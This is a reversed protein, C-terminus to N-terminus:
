KHGNHLNQVFKQRQPWTPQRPKATSGLIHILFLTFKRNLYERETEFEIKEWIKPEVAIGLYGAHGCLGASFDWPPVKQFFIQKLIQM